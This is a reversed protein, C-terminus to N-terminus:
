YQEEQVDEEWMWFTYGRPWKHFERVTGDPKWAGFNNGNKSDYTVHYKEKVRALSLINAIGNEHFWVEGYGPLDGVLSMTTVGANCHINMHHNSERINVLLKRNYFVDVTSQNDLLVWNPNVKKGQNQNLVHPIDVSNADGTFRSEKVSRPAESDCTVQKNSKSFSRKDPHVKIKAKSASQATPNTMVQKMSM